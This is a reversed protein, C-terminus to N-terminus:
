NVNKLYGNKENKVAHIGCLLAIDKEGGIIWYLGSYYLWYGMM